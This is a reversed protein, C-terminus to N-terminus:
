RELFRVQCIGSLFSFIESVKLHALMATIIVVQLM